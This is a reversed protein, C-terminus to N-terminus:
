WPPEEVEYVELALGNIGKIVAVSSETSENGQYPSNQLLQSRVIQLRQAGSDTSGDRSRNDSYGSGDGGADSGRISIINNKRSKGSVVLHVKGRGQVVKKPGKFPCNM